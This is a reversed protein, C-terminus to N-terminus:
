FLGFYSESGVQGGKFNIEVGHMLANSSHIKCLPAGKVMPAIMEVANIEMARAAYSSTDGGSVIIRKIGVIKVAKKAISGLATGLKESSLNAKQKTGTHVIVNKNEKLFNNVQEFVKADIVDDNCIKIADIIVEEFGNAKAWIIQAATVPSCSGSVVLLPTAKVVKPWETVSKTIGQNNWYKGLAMEVSSGGISFVASGGTYQSELWEGIKTLQEDYLADILVV